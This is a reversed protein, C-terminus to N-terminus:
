LQEKTSGFEQSHFPTGSVTCTPPETTAALTRISMPAVATCSGLSKSVSSPTCPSAKAGFITCEVGTALSTAAAPVKASGGVPSSPSCLVPQSKHATQTRAQVKQVVAAFPVSRRERVTRLDPDSMMHAVDTYGAAVAQDLMTIALELRAEAIEQPRTGHWTPPLGPAVDETASKGAEPVEFFAAAAISFCCAKNYTAEGSPKGHLHVHVSNAEDSFRYARALESAGAIGKSIIPLALNGLWEFTEFTAPMSIPPENPNPEVVIRATAPTATPTSVPLATTPTATPTSVPVVMQSPPSPLKPPAVAQMASTLMRPRTPSGSRPVPSGCGTSDSCLSDSTRMRYLFAGSGVSENCTSGAESSCESMMSGALKRAVIPLTSAPSLAPASRGPTSSRSEVVASKSAQLVKLGASISKGSTPLTVTSNAKTVPAARQILAAASVSKQKVGHQPAAQSTSSTCSSSAFCPRQSSPIALTGQAPVQGSKKKMRCAQCVSYSCSTCKYRLAEPTWGESKSCGQCAWQQLGTSFVRLKHGLPCHFSSIQQAHKGDCSCCGCLDYDCQHCRYRSQDGSLDIKNECGDCVFVSRRATDEVPHELTMHHGAPCVLIEAQQAIAAQLPLAKVADSAQVPKSVVPGEIVAVPTELVSRSPSVVPSEVQIVPREAVYVVPGEVTTGPTEDIVTLPTDPMDDQLVHMDFEVLLAQHERPSAGQNPEVRFVTEATLESTVVKMSPSLSLGRPSTYPSVSTCTEPTRPAEGCEPTGAQVNFYFNPLKMSVAPSPPTGPPAPSDLWRETCASTEREVKAAALVSLDVRPMVPPIPQSPNRGRCGSPSRARGAGDPSLSQGSHSRGMVRSPSADAGRPPLESCAPPDPEAIATKALELAACESNLMDASRAEAAALESRLASIEDAQREQEVAAKRAFTAMAVFEERLKDVETDRSLVQPEHVSGAAASAESLEASWYYREADRLKLVEERLAFGENELHVCRERLAAIVFGDQGPSGGAATRPSYIVMTASSSQEMTKRFATEDNGPSSRPNEVDHPPDTVTTGAESSFALSDESDAGDTDRPLGAVSVLDKLGSSHEVEKPAKLIKSLHGLAALAEEQRRARAAAAKLDVILTDEDAEYSEYISSSSGKRGFHPLEDETDDPVTQPFQFVDSSSGSGGFCPLPAPPEQTSSSGSAEVDIAAVAFQLEVSM